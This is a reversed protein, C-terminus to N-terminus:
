ARSVLGLESMRAITESRSSVGLKRYISIAQTKVTHRSIFLREGIEAFTLHTSLLPLLRLEATTLASAGLMETKLADVRVRLEDTQRTISDLQPRQRLLESLQRLVARSGNPDGLAVYARALELLARASVVPLTYTLLPRLRAARITLEHAEGLAGRRCAAGATWAFVLASTWYDDYRGDDMLALAQAAFADAAIWDERQAAVIGREVLLVPIFPVVGASTAEDLARTAGM